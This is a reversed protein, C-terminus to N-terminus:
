ARRQRDTEEIRPHAEEGAPGAGVPREVYLDDEAAQEAVQGAQEVDAAERGERVRAPLRGLTHRRQEREREARAGRLHKQRRLRLQAAPLDVVDVEIGAGRLEASM